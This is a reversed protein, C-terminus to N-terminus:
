GRLTTDIADLTAGWPADLSRPGDSVTSRSRLRPVTCSAAPLGSLDTLGPEAIGHGPPLAHRVEIVPRPRGARSKLQRTM